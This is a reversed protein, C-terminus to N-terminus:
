DVTKKLVGLVVVRDGSSTNHCTSLTILKDGYEPRIGTKILNKSQVYDMATEFRDKDAFNINGYWQDNSYVTMCAFVQYEFCGDLTEFEITKHEKWYSLKKYNHLQGFMTGNLMHHSYIFINDSDVTCKSDMFPTGYSSKRGYFDAWLYREPEDPCCMVPYNVKTGKIYVWGICDPNTKNLAKINRKITNTNNKSEQKPSGEQGPDDTDTGPVDENGEEDPDDALPDDDSKTEEGDDLQALKEVDEFSSQAINADAFYKILMSSSIVIGALCILYAAFLIKSIKRKGKAM